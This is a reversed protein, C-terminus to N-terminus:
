IFFITLITVCINVTGPILSCRAKLDSSRDITNKKNLLFFLSRMSKNKFLRRPPGANINERNASAPLFLHM